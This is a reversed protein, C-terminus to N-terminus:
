FESVLGVYGGSLARVIDDQSAKASFPLAKGEDPGMSYLDFDDNVPVM